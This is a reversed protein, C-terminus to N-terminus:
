DGQLYKRVQTLDLDFGQKLWFDLGAQNGAQIQVEVSHVGLGAFKEMAAAVLQAGTGSGRLEEGVFLDSIEGVQVFGLFPPSQKVRALLFAGVDGNQEAVWLFSFRGLTRAFSAIWKEEASEPHPFDFGLERHFQDLRGWLRAVAKLDDEGAIRIDAAM